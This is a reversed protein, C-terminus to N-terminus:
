NLPSGPLLGAINLHLVWSCWSATPETFKLSTTQGKPSLTYTQTRRRSHPHCIRTRVNADPCLPRQHRFGAHLGAQLVRDQFEGKLWPRPAIGFLFAKDVPAMDRLYDDITNTLTVVEGSRMTEETKVQDAPVEDPHTPLHTHVDVIM